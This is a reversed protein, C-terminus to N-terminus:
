CWTIQYIIFFISREVFGVITWTHTHLQFNIIIPIRPSDEALENFWFQHEAKLSLSAPPMENSSGLSNFPSCQTTTCADNLGDNLDRSDPHISYSCHTCPFGTPTRMNSSSLQGISIELIHKRHTDISRQSPSATNTSSLCVCKEAVLAVDINAAVICNHEVIFELKSVNYSLAIWM